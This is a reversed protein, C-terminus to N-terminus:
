AEASPPSPDVYAIWWQVVEKGAVEDLEDAAELRHRGAILPEGEISWAEIPKTAHPGKGWQKLEFQVVFGPRAPIM